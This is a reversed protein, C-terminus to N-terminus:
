VCMYVRVREGDWRVICVCAGCACTCVCTRARVCFEQGHVCVSARARAAGDTRVYTYAGVRVCVCERACWRRWVFTINYCMCIIIYVVNDEIANTKNEVIEIIIM